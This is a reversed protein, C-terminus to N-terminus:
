LGAKRLRDPIKLVLDADGHELSTVAAYFKCGFSTFEESIDALYEVLIGKHFVPILSSRSGFLFEVYRRLM